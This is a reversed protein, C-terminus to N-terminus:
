KKKNDDETEGDEQDELKEEPKLEQDEPSQKSAKDVWFNIYYDSSSDKTDDLNVKIRYLGEPTDETPGLIFRRNKADFEIWKIQARSLQVQVEVTDDVDEDIINPLEVIKTM